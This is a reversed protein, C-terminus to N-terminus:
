RRFIPITWFPTCPQAVLSESRACKGLFREPLRVSIRRPVRTLRQWIHLYDTSGVKVLGDIASKKLMEFASVRSPRKKGEDNITNADQLELRHQATLWETADAIAEMSDINPQIDNKYYEDPSSLKAHTAELGRKREQFARFKQGLAYVRWLETVSLLEIRDAGDVHWIFDRKHIAIFPVELHQIFLLDLTVQVATILAQLYRHFNGEIRFFDREVRQGLRLSVWYSAASLDQALLPPDLSLTADTTLSSTVLQMREPIDQARILDDDETLM